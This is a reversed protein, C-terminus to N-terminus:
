STAGISSKIRFEMAPLRVSRKQGLTEFAYSLTLWWFNSSLSCLYPMLPGVRFHIWANKDSRVWVTTILLSFDVVTGTM